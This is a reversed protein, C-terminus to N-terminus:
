SCSAPVHIEAPNRPPKLSKDALLEWFYVQDEVYDELNLELYRLIAVPRAIEAFLPFLLPHLGFDVVLTQDDVLIYGTQYGINGDVVTIQCDNLNKREKLDQPDKLEQPKKLVELDWQTYHPDQVYIKVEKGMDEKLMDRMALLAAHRTRNTRSVPHLSEHPPCLTGAGFAVIKDCTRKSRANLSHILEWLQVRLNCRVFEARVKGYEKRVTDISPYLRALQEQEILKHQEQQPSLGFEEKIKSFSIVM